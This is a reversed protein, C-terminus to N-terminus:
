ARITWVGDGLAPLTYTGDTSSYVSTDAEVIQITVCIHDNQGDLLVRPNIPTKIPSEIEECGWSIIFPLGMILIRPIYRLVVRLGINKDKISTSQDLGFNRSM